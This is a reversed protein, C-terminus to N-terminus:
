RLSQSGSTRGWGGFYLKAREWAAPARRLARKRRWVIAVSLKRGHRMSGNNYCSYLRMNRKPRMHQKLELITRQYKLDSACAYRYTYGFDPCARRVPRARPRKTEMQPKTQTEANKTASTYTINIEVCYPGGCKDVENKNQYHSGLFSHSRPM